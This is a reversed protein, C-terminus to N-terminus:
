EKRLAAVSDRTPTGPSAPERRGATAAPSAAKGPHSASGAPASAGSKAGGEEIWQLFGNLDDALGHQYDGRRLRVRASRNGERFERLVQGIRYSTGAVRHSSLLASLLQVTAASVFLLLMGLRREPFGFITGDTQLKGAAVQHEYFFEVLTALALCGIMPLSTTLIIRLQTAGDVIVTKRQNKGMM